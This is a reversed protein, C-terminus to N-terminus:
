GASNIREVLVKEGMIAEATNIATLPVGCIGHLNINQGTLFLNRVKTYLPIQSLMINRCDKRMGYLAGQPQHYYDRITLPSSAEVYQVTNRFGPYLLEMKDLVKEVHQQKWIKYEEGRHGVRTNEWREVVSFPMLCNIIMKSAYTQPADVADAPTMYMFGKPWDHADYEGHEWVEGYDDQEYCTHNIYPFANEKFQIYLTFASYTNPIENVRTTYSKPFAGTTCLPLLAAPHIASVVQTFDKIVTGNNSLEIATAQHDDVVIRVVEADTIVEGGHERIVTALADALQQSGGVFRSPGTIYLVNILAHIYAPTHGKVGGYMPNMYALIDRLREDQIYHAILEDASWLFRESHSFLADSGRRMWFLDVEEALEFLADVYDHIHEAEHSFEKSFYTVFAERGEPICYTKHHKLYTISDMCGADTPRLVITKDNRLPMEGQDDTIIDIGLYRCIKWISGGERLGGLIHMGTEFRMGHRLFTQLGGGLTHNKELVTVKYGEKALLAGTFLGGLGGGIVAIRQM